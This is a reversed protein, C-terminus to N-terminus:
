AKAEGVRPGRIGGKTLGKNKWIDALIGGVGQGIDSWIGINQGRRTTADQRAYSFPTLVNGAANSAVGLAGVGSNALSAGAGAQASGIGAGIQATQMLGAAAAPRASSYLRALEGTKAMRLDSKLRDSEGGEGGFRRAQETAQSYTDQIRQTEPAFFEARTATDGTMLKNFYDRSSGLDESAGAFSQQAQQILDRSVGFMAEAQEMSLEGTQMLMQIAEMEQPSLPGPDEGAEVKKKRNMLMGIGMAAGQIVFNLWGMQIPEGNYTPAPGYSTGLAIAIFLVIKWM